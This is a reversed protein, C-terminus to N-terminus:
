QELPEAMLDEVESDFEDAIFALEMADVEIIFMPWGGVTDDAIVAYRASPAVKSIRQLVDLLTESEDSGGWGIVTAFKVRTSQRNMKVKPLM